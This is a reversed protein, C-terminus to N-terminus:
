TARPCARFWGRAAFATQDQGGGHLLYMVPYRQQSMRYSAPLLITAVQESGLSASPVKVVTAPAIDSPARPVQGVLPLGSWASLVAAILAIRRV